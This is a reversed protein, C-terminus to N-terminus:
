VKIKNNIYAYVRKPKSKSNVALVQEFEKIRQNIKKKLNRNLEKNCELLQNDSFKVKKCELWLRRQEKTLLKIEKTIKIAGNYRQNNSLRIVPIFKKCGDHCLSLWKEYCSNVDRNHYERSWNLSEFYERIKYFNGNKYNFQESIFKSDITCNLFSYKFKIIHHGHEIGGLPPLHILGFIRNKCETLILDLVNTM